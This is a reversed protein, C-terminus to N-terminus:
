ADGLHLNKRVLCAACAGEHSANVILIQAGPPLTPDTLAALLAFGGHVSGLDGLQSAVDIISSCHLGLHEPDVARNKYVRDIELLAKDGVQSRLRRLCEQVGAARDPCYLGTVAQLEALIPQGRAKAAAASELAFLAVGEALPAAMDGRTRQLSQMFLAYAPTLEEAGGVLALQTRGDAIQRAALALADLSSTEGNTLTLCSGKISRRIAAYSAPVNFVTNPFVGPQVYQPEDITQLDFEFISQLPGTSGVILSVAEDAVHARRAETDAFHLAQHLFDTTVSLHVT